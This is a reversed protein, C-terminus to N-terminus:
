SRTGAVVWIILRGRRPWFYGELMYLFVAIQKGQVVGLDSGGGGAIVEGVM